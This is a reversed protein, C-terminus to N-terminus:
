QNNVFEAVVCTLYRLVIQKGYCDSLVRTKSATIYISIKSHFCGVAIRLYFLYKINTERLMDRSKLERFSMLHEQKATSIYLIPKNKIRINYLDQSIDFCCGFIDM